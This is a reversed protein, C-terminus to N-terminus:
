TKPVVVSVISGYEVKPKVQATTSPSLDITMMSNKGCCSSKCQSHKAYKYIAGMISLIGAVVAGIILSDQYDSM